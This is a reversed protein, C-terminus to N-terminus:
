DLTKLVVIEFVETLDKFSVRYLIMLSQRSLITLHSALSKIHIIMFIKETVMRKMM